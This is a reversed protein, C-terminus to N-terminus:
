GVSQTRDRSYTRPYGGCRSNERIAEYKRVQGTQWVNCCICGCESGGIQEEKTNAWESSRGGSPKSGRPRNQVSDDRRVRRGKGIFVINDYSFREAMPCLM